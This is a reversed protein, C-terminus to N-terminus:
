QERILWKFFCRLNRYHQNASVASTREVEATLFARVSEADVGETDDPLGHEALYEVFERGTRHVYAEITRPSLQRGALSRERSPLMGALPAGQRIVAVCDPYREM